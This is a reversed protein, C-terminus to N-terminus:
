PRRMRELAVGLVFALVAAVVISGERLGTQSLVVAAAASLAGAVVAIQTRLWPLLLVLFAAPMAFDLGWKLPDAVIGSLAVGAVTAAIWSVYLLLFTSVQYGLSYGHKAFRTVNVAYTEDTIGFALLWKAGPPQERTYTSLSVGMMFFRLNVLLVFAVLLALNALAKSYLSVVIFQALGAFVTVSMTIIASAPLGSTVGVIGFALGFPVVGIILPLMDRAAERVVPGRPAGPM